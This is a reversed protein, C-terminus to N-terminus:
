MKKIHQLEMAQPPQTMRCVSQQGHHLSHQRTRRTCSSRTALRSFSGKVTHIRAPGIPFQTYLRYLFSVVSILYASVRCTSVCFMALFVQKGTMGVRSTLHRVYPAHPDSPAGLTQWLSQLLRTDECRYKCCPRSRVDGKALYSIRATCNIQSRRRLQHKKNCDQPQIERERERERERQGGCRRWPVLALVRHQPNTEIYFLSYGHHTAVKTCTNLGLVLSTTLTYLEQTLTVLSRREAAM